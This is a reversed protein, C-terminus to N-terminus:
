DGFLDKPVLRNVRVSKGFRGQVSGCEEVVTKAILETIRGTVRNITIGLSYAIGEDTTPGLKLVRVVEAQRETLDISHYSKISNPHVETKM